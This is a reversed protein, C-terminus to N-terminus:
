RRFYSTHTIPLPISVRIAIRSLVTTHPIPSPSHSQFLLEEDTKGGPILYSHHPTPNFGSKFRYAVLIHSTHTISLPISVSSDVCPSPGMHPIPSLSHSQFRAPTNSWSAQTFYPHHPTPNFSAGRIPKDRVHSTHTIPLPTSVVPRWTQTTTHLIPSLSRSQFM